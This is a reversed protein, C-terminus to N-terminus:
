CISSYNRQYCSIIEDCISSFFNSVAKDIINEKINKKWFKYNSIKQKYEIEEMPIGNILKKFMAVLKKIDEIDSNKLSKNLFLKEFFTEIKREVNYFEIEHKSFNQEYQVLNKMEIDDDRNKNLNAMITYDGNKKYCEKILDIQNFMQSNIYPASRGIRGLDAKTTPGWEKKRKNIEESIGSANSYGNLYNIIERYFIKNKDPIIKSWDYIINIIQEKSLNKPFDYNEYISSYNFHSARFIDLQIIIADILEKESKRNAYGSYYDFIRKGKYGYFFALNELAAIANLMIGNSFGQDILQSQKSLQKQQMIM